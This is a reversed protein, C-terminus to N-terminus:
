TSVLKKLKSQSVISEEDISENRRLKRLRSAEEKLRRLGDAKGMTNTMGSGERHVEGDGGLTRGVPSCIDEMRTDRFNAPNASAGDTGRVGLEARL